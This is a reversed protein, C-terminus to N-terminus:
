RDSRRRLTAEREEDAVSGRVLEDDGSAFDFEDAFPCFDDRVVRDIDLDLILPYLRCGEPRLEYVSCRGNALFICSGDVNYLQPVHDENLVCFDRHGAGELRQVDAETLTMRTNLCCVHCQHAHCPDARDM